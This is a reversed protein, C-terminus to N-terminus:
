RDLKQRIAMGLRELEDVVPPVPAPGAISQSVSERFQAALVEEPAALILDALPLRVQTAEHQVARAHRGRRRPLQGSRDSPAAGPKEFPHRGRNEEERAGELFF